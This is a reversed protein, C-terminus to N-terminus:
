LVLYTQYDPIGELYSWYASFIFLRVFYFDTYLCYRFVNFSYGSWHWWLRCCRFSFLNIWFIVTEPGYFFSLNKPIYLSTWQEAMESFDWFEAGLLFISVSGRDGSEVLKIFPWSARHVYWWNKNSPHFFVKGDDPGFCFIFEFVSISSPKVMLVYHKVQYQMSVTLIRFRPFLILLLLKTTLLIPLLLLRPKAVFTQNYHHNQNITLLATTNRKFCRYICASRVVIM